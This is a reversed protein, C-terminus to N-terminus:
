EKEIQKIAALCCRGSPNRIECACNGKKIEIGIWKSFGNKGTGNLGSKIIEETVDFCYCVPSQGNKEKAGIRARVDETQYTTGKESFYVVSCNAASCFYFNEEPVEPIFSAKLWHKLTKIGVTSSDSQCAPCMPKANSTTKTNKKTASRCDM